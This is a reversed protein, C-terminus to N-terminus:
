DGINSQRSLAEVSLNKSGIAAIYELSACKEPFPLSGSLGTKSSNDTRLSCPISAEEGESGKLKDPVTEPPLNVTGPSTM